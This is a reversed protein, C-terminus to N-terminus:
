KTSRKRGRETPLSNTRSDNWFHAPPRLNKIHDRCQKGLDKETEGTLLEWLLSATRLYPGDGAASPRREPSLELMLDLAYIACLKKPFADSRARRVKVQKAADLARKVDDKLRCASFSLAVPEGASILKDRALAVQKLGNWLEFYADRILRATGPASALSALTRNLGPPAIGTQLCFQEERRGIVQDIKTECEQRPIPPKLAEAIEGILEKRDRSM